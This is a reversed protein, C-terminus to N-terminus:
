LGPHSERPTPTILSPILTIPHHHVLAPTTRHHHILVSDWPVQWLARTPTANDPGHPLRLVVAHLLLNPEKDNMVLFDAIPTSSQPNIGDPPILPSEMPHPCPCPGGILLYLMMLYGKMWFPELEGGLIRKKRQEEMTGMNPHHQTTLRPPLHRLEQERRRPEYWIVLWM